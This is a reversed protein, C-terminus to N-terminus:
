KNAKEWMEEAEKRIAPTDFHATAKSIFLSKRQKREELTEPLKHLNCNTKLNDCYECTM